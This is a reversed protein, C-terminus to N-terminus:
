ESKNAIQQSLVLSIISQRGEESLDCLCTVADRRANQEQLSLKGDFYEFLLLYDTYLRNAYRLGEPTFHVKGYYEKDFLGEECLAHIMKSASPRQVCLRDAIDKSRVGKSIDDALEYAALLYRKKASSLM